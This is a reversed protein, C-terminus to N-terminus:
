ALVGQFPVSFGVSSFLIMTLLMESIVPQGAQFDRGIIQLSPQCQDPGVGIFGAGYRGQQLYRRDQDRSIICFPRKQKISINTGGPPPGGGCRCSKSSVKMMSSPFEM